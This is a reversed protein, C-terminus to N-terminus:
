ENILYMRNLFRKQFDPQSTLEIYQIRKAILNASRRLKSSILCQKAGVGAANGVQHFRELPINPFMGIQVASAVNIYSGFAGAIVFNEINEAKIHAIDLLIDIGVRIASKALQIENIDKRSLTIDKGHGSQDAPVLLFRSLGDSTLILPHNTIFAGKSNIINANKMEAIADLIGSGCIGVPPKHDITFVHVQGMNIKVREIAGPAARMGDKIHAGEFAPGSAASCCYINGNKVLSIETNTGIDVGIAIDNTKWLQTALLMAVHDAGVYGAINPLLHIVAEPAMKVGIKSAPVDISQSVTPVCPSLGLQEVTLGAFLHHMVTNGVFVGEIIQETSISQSTCIDQIIDNLSGILVSQLLFRGDSHEQTFTIRSMVDEGYAIQPNMIATKVVTQGTELEVLYIAVKTTGIDVALGFIQKGPPLLAALRGDTIALRAKWKYQRVKPSLEQLIGIGIQPPKNGSDKIAQLIRSSDARLDNLNPPQCSIDLIKIAPDFAVNLENGEIQMRQSTSLSSPPIEIKIDSLPRVQCALRYGKSIESPDLEAEESLTIPTTEGKVIRVKCSGCWGEGNCLSVISIGASRVSDLVTDNPEIEVRRGIPEIDLTFLNKEPHSIM